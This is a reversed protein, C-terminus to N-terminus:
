QAARSRQGPRGPRTPSWDPRCRERSLGRHDDAVAACHGVGRACRPGPHRDRCPSVRAAPSADVSGTRVTTASRPTPSAGVEDMDDVYRLRPHVCRCRHDTPPTPWTAHHADRVADPRARRLHTPAAPPWPGRPIQAGRHGPDRTSGHPPCGPQEIALLNHCATVGSGCYVIASTTDAGVAAYRVRLAPADLFRGDADLNGAFTVNLAGPIHGARPDVPETTGDYRQPARADIVVGGCAVTDAVRDADVLRAPPWDDFHFSGPVIEPAVVSLPEDTAAHGGDLLAAHEGGTRLLWVM